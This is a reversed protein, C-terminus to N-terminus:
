LVIIDGKFQSNRHFYGTIITGSIHSRRGHDSCQVAIPAIKFCDRHYRHEIGGYM